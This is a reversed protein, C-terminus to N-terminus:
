LKSTKSKELTVFEVNEQVTIKMKDLDLAVLGGQGVKHYVCGNDITIDFNNKRKLAEKIRKLGTPTHGHVIKRFGIKEPIIKAHRSWLMAHKDEFPNENIFNFGAHVLMVEDLQIYYELSNFFDIYKAPIDAIRKVGFSKLTQAGGQQKFFKLLLPDHLSRLLVDEHNGKLCRIQYGQEKLKLIHKIVGKSGPGKNIYDGLLYLEDTPQLDIKLLLQRFTKNCGHIDSIAWRKPM